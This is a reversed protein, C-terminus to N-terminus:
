SMGTLLPYVINPETMMNNKAALKVWEAIM